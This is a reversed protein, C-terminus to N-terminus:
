RWLQPEDMNVGPVNPPLIISRARRRLSGTMEKRHPHWPKTHHTPLFISLCKDSPFQCPSVASLRNLSVFGGLVTVLAVCRKVQALTCALLFLIYMSGISTYWSIYHKDYRAFIYKMWPIELKKWWFIWGKRWVQAEGSPAGSSTGLIDIEFRIFDITIQSKYLSILYIYICPYINPTAGLGWSAITVM